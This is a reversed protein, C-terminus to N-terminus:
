CKKYYAKIYVHMYTYIPFRKKGWKMDDQRVECWNNSSCGAIRLYWGVVAPKQLVMFLKCKMGANRQQRLSTVWGYPHWHLFPFTLSYCGVPCCGKVLPLSFSTFLGGKKQCQLWSQPDEWQRRLAGLWIVGQSPVSTVLEIVSDPCFPFQSETRGTNWPKWEIGHLWKGLCAEQTGKGQSSSM